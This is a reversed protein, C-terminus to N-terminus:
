NIANLFKVIQESVQASAEHHVWHGVNEIELNGILGPVHVKLREFPPYLIALGDSKGTIYFTPQTIKAGKWQESLNFYHEAARYYNLAGHFGTRQFEKINYAVYDPEAWSPLAVPAPRYFVRNPDMPHWSTEEPASGSAWYLMGPITVAADSWVQDAEPRMQDFMYFHNQHGASRMKEFISIDGRPVYPVSMCLVASFRDPHLLAANWSHTAGWDHGVLVATDINLADLLGTLDASTQIPTYLKADEPASSRGYGRMDPAIARYGADAVVKMQRRWTYSTDPFGHVFLVVPGEGLETVHLTIGNTEVDYEKVSPAAIFNTNSNM